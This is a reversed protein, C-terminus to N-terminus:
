PVRNGGRERMERGARRLAYISEMFRVFKEMRQAPTLKLNEILLTRDIDRKFAAVLDECSSDTVYQQPPEHITLGPSPLMKAVRQAPTLELNKRLAQRDVKEKFHEILDNTESIPAMNSPNTHDAAPESM